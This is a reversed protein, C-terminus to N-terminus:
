GLCRVDATMAIGYATPSYTWVKLEGMRFYVASLTKKFAEDEEVLLSELRSLEMEISREKVVYMLSVKSRLATLFLKEFAAAAKTKIESELQALRDKESLFGDCLVSLQRVARGYLENEKM